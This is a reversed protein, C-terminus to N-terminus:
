FLKDPDTPANETTIQPVDPVEVADEVEANGMFRELRKSIEEALEADSKNKHTIELKDSFLGVEKIKGLLELAKIRIRGDPNASDNLLSNTVYARLRVASDILEEDLESLMVDLKQVEPKKYRYITEIIQQTKSPTLNKDLTVNKFTERVHDDEDPTLQLPTNPDEDAALVAATHIALKAREYQSLTSLLRAQEPGGRMEIPPEFVTDREM